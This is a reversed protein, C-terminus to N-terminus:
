DSFQLRKLIETVEKPWVTHLCRIEEIPKGRFEAMVEWITLKVDNDAIGPVLKYIAQKKLAKLPKKVEEM